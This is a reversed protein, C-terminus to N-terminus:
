AEVSFQVDGPLDSTALGDEGHQRLPFEIHM